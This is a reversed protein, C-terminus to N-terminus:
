VLVYSRSRISPERAHTLDAERVFSCVFQQTYLPCSPCCILTRWQLLTIAFLDSQINYVLAQYCCRILRRRSGRSQTWMERRIAHATRRRVSRCSDSSTKSNWAERTYTEHTREQVHRLNNNKYFSNVENKQRYAHHCRPWSVCTCDM